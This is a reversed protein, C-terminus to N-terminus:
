DYLRQNIAGHAGIARRLLENVTEPTLQNREAFPLEIPDTVSLMTVDHVFAPIVRSAFHLADGIWAPSPNAEPQDQWEIGDCLEDSFRWARLLVSGAYAQPFGVHEREWDGVPQCGDWFLGGGVDAIAQNIALRGIFRLLGATHAVDPDMDGTHRAIEELFLGHLLSESWFVEAPIGYSGLDRAAVLHGVALSLLRVSERFGIKQVARELSAVREDAGYFASNAGRIIDATLVSDVKILDVVDTIDSNPDRLMAMARCLVRPAPSLQEIRAIAALFESNSSKM